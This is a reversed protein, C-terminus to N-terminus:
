SVFRPPLDEFIEPLAATATVSSDMVQKFTAQFQQMEPRTGVTVRVWTPMIPWVRGIYVNKAAMADIVIKGPRNTQVMFCNTVSPIFEYNNSSLWAFTENRVDTIIKKREPVLNKDALSARAAAVSTVPMSNWGNYAQVKAVLDPRGIAFGCRLGAMGYVKSFTRLVIVDKDAAAMDLCPPADSLHIYAEDILLISDKPKNALLYEIDARPTTTGTPNNPNCIYFVGADPAQALMAKVDHSHDAKLPVKVVKAGSMKSAMLGAEYGPDATVFSKGPGTYALVTYHLPESSGAYVMVYEPKLGEQAAFYKVLDVQLDTRYRGGNRTMEECATCALPSPGMPNENADIYVGGALHVKPARRNQAALRAETFIPIAGAASAAAAFRLFSRRSIAAPSPLDEPPCCSTELEHHIVNM